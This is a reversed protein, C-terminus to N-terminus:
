WQHAVPQVVSGRVQAGAIRVISSRRVVNTVSVHTM